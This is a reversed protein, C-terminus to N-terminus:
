LKFSSPKYAGYPELARSRSWGKEQFIEENEPESYHESHAPSDFGDPGVTRRRKRSTGSDGEDWSDISGKRSLHISVEQISSRRTRDKHEITKESM